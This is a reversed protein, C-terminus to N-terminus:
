AILTNFNFDFNYPVKFIGWTHFYLLVREFIEHTLSSLM